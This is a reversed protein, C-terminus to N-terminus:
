RPTTAYLDRLSTKLVKGNANRPLQAIPVFAKPLKYPALHIRSYAELEAATAHQGDNFVVYAVVLEGWRQDPVGIIASEKVAPHGDVATEVERPYINLGGSIVMDKKRDVIYFYGEDDRKALDGVSVWGDRFAEATQEPKEWYGNFLVPSRSYLEGVQNSGVELGDAGLLRVENGVFPLGVCQIKRLQDQPRLNTVVGAETSGYTEHLLGAGFYDVIREKADQSLPAANAVIGNLRNGRLSALLPAELAFISHYHTPVTFIGTVDGDHLRRLVAEADFKAMIETTGGLFLPAFAYCFGAGHCMPTIALFHDDPSYIGYEAAFALCSLSRSRHPLMVGKPKGTTGSTYPISFTTWEPVNPPTYASSAQQKLAELEPGIVIMREVTDFLAIDVRRAVDADVFIVRAKADNCIAALEGATLKPNPTAVAVGIDSIGAMIELYDISNSSIIAVNDGIVLGLGSAALNAIRNIDHVLDRYTKRQSGMIAAVKSPSRLAATRVGSAITLNRFGAPLQPM